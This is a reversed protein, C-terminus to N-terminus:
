HYPPSNNRPSIHLTTSLAKKKDKLYTEGKISKVMDPNWKVGVPNFHLSVWDLFPWNDRELQKFFFFNNRM